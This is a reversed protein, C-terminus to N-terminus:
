PQERLLQALTISAWILVGGFFLLMYFDLAGSLIQFTETGCLWDKFGSYCGISISILGLTVGLAVVLLSGVRRM